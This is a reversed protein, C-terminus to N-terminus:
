GAPNSGWTKLRGRDIKGLHTRPFDELIVVRRPHKYRQLHELCHVKLAEELGESAAAPIVFAIPKTLGETSEV